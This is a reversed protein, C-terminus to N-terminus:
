CVERFVLTLKSPIAKRFYPQFRRTKDAQAFNQRSRDQFNPRPPMRQGQNPPGKIKSNYGPLDKETFVFTNASNRNTVHMNYEKPVSDNQIADPSLMLSM